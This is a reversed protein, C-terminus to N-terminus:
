GIRYKITARAAWSWHFRWGNHLTPDMNCLHFQSSLKRENTNMGTNLALIEFYQSTDWAFINSHKRAHQLLYFSHVKGNM